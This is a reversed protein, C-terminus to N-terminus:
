GLEFVEIFKYCEQTRIQKFDFFWLNAIYNLMQEFTKEKTYSTKSLNNLYKKTSLEVEIPITIGEEKLTSFFLDFPLDIYKEIKIQYEKNQMIRNETKYINYCAGRIM